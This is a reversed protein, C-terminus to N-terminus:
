TSTLRNRAGSPAGSRGSATPSNSVAADRRAPNSGGIRGCWSRCAQPLLRSIPPTAVEGVGAAADIHDGVQESM